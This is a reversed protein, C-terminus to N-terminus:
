LIPGNECRRQGEMQIDQLAKSNEEYFTGDKLKDFISGATELNELSESEADERVSKDKMTKIDRNDSEM